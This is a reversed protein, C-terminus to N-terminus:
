PRYSSRFSDFLYPCQGLWYEADALSFVWEAGWGMAARCQETGYHDYNGNLGFPHLFEHTFNAAVFYTPTSAYADGVADACMSYGNHTTCATGPQNRCQGDISVDSVLNGAEDYGCAGYRHSWHLVAVYVSGGGSLPSVFPNVFGAPGPVGFSYGGRSRALGDDGYSFVVVGDPIPPAKGALYERVWAEISAAPRGEGIELVEYVFGTREFLLGSAEELATALGDAPVPESNLDVLISLTFSPPAGTAEATTDGTPLTTVSPVEVIATRTAPAPSPVPAACAWGALFLAGLSWLLRRHKM